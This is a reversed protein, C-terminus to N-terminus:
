FYQNLLLLTYLNHTLYLNFTVNSSVKSKVIQFYINIFNRFNLVRKCENTWEKMCWENLWKINQNKSLFEFYKLKAYLLWLITWENQFRTKFKVELFPNTIQLKYLARFEWKKQTIFCCKKKKPVLAPSNRSLSKLYWFIFIM